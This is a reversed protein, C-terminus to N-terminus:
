WLHPLRFNDIIVSFDLLFMKIREKTDKVGYIGTLTDMKGQLSSLLKWADGVYAEWHKLDNRLMALDYSNLPAHGENSPGFTASIFHGLSKFIEAKVRVAETLQELPPQCPIATCCFKSLNKIVEFAFM